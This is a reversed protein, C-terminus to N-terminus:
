RQNVSEEATKLWERWQDAQERAQRARKADGAAEAKAAQSEFQAVRDRFQAVRAEAEPDTRRWQRDVADRVREEVARLASELPRIDDRPVKGVAEWREQIDRLAARAGDADDTDIKEAEALLARKADANAGFEADREDFVQTRRSFFQDQASRFRQWLGDDADKQARGAAKWEAMLERYRAATPGWDTSGVLQEAEAALEEKRAKATSRQRDLDAFHSGRRRNFAERSRSYRKWLAEDTRRDIGKITRWEDLIAKFRDGAQKWQTAESALAEAEVALAEKRAVAAERQASRASRAAGVQEEALTVLQELHASLAAVDGVVSAEPLSDRMATASHLAAKPDGGGAALRATLLEAETRLDDFRRAFHALGEVPEGAQWSGVEREGDSTVLFVHGEDDVRGWRAPDASAEAVAIGPTAPAAAVPTPEAAAAEAPSLDAAPAVPPRPPPVPRPRGGPPPGPLPARPAPPPGPTPRPPAAVTGRAPEAGTSADSM